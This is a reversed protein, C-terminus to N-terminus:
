AYDAERIFTVDDDHWLRISQRCLSSELARRASPVSGAVVFITHGGTFFCAKYDGLRKVLSGCPVRPTGDPSRYMAYKGPKEKRWYLTIM